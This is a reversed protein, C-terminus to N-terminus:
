PATASAVSLASTAIPRNPMSAIPKMNARNVNSSRATAKTAASQRSPSKRKLSVTPNARVAAMTSQCHRCRGRETAAAAAQAKTEGGSANHLHQRNRSERQHPRVGNFFDVPLFVPADRWFPQLQHQCPYFAGAGAHLRRRIRPQDVAPKLPLRLARRHRLHYQAIGASGAFPAQAAIPAAPRQRLDKLMRHSGIDRCHTRTIRLHALPAPYLGRTVGEAHGLIFEARDPLFSLGPNRLPEM